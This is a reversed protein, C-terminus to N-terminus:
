QYPPCDWVPTGGVAVDGDAAITFPGGLPLAPALSQLVPCSAADMLPTCSSQTPTADSTFDVVTCVHPNPLSLYPVLRVGAVVGTGSFSAEGTPVGGAFVYCGVDASVPNRGAERSVLAVSTYVLAQPGLDVVGCEGLALTSALASAPTSGYLGLAFAAVPLLRRM